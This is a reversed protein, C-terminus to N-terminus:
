KELLLGTTIGLKKYSNVVDICAPRRLNGTGSLEFFNAGLLFNAHLDELNESKLIPHKHGRYFGKKVKQVYSKTGGIMRAKKIDSHNSLYSTYELFELLNMQNFDKYVVRKTKTNKM